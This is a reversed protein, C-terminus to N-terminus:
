PGSKWNPNPEPMTANLEAQWSRLQQRMRTTREPHRQSLDRREELDTELDYLEVEDFEYFEILKWQGDRM